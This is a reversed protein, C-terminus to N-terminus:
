FLLNKKTLEKIKENLHLKLGIFHIIFLFFSLKLNFNQQKIHIFRGRFDILGGNKKNPM